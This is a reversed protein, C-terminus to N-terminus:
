EGCPGFNKACVEKNIPEFITKQRTYTFTTSKSALIIIEICIRFEMLLREKGVLVVLDDGHFLSTLSTSFGETYAVKANARTISDNLYKSIDSAENCPTKLLNTTQRKRRAGATTKTSTFNGRLGALVKELSARDAASITTNALKEEIQAVLTNNLQVLATVNGNIYAMQTEIESQLKVFEDVLETYNVPATTVPFCKRV